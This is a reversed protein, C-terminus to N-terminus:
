RLLCNKVLTPRNLSNVSFAKYAVPVNLDLRMSIGLAKLFVLAHLLIGWPIKSQRIYSDLDIDETKHFSLFGTRRREVLVMGVPNGYTDTSVTGRRFPATCSAIGVDGMCTSYLVWMRPTSTASWNHADYLIWFWDCLYHCRMNKKKNSMVTIFM